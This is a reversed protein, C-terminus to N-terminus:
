LLIAVITATFIPSARSCALRLVMGNISPNIVTVPSTPISITPAMGFLASRAGIKTGSDMFSPTAGSGHQRGIPDAVRRGVDDSREHGIECQDNYKRLAVCPPLHQYRRLSSAANHQRPRPRKSKTTERRPIARAEKQAPTVDSWCRSAERAKADSTAIMLGSPTAKTKRRSVM